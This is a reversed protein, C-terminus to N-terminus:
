SFRMKKLVGRGDSLDPLGLLVQTMNVVEPGRLKEVMWKGSNIRDPVVRAEVQMGKQLSGGGFATHHVYVKRGDELSVFGFGREDNWDAVVGRTWAEGDLEADVGADPAQYFPVLGGFHHGLTAGFVGAVNKLVGGGSCAAGAGSWNEVSGGCAGCASGASATAAVMEPRRVVQKAMYRNPQREDAAVNVQVLEGVLLDGGGFASSHVYIQRGDLSQVFGFGRPDWSIVEAWVVDSSLDLGIGCCGQASSQATGAADSLPQAAGAGFQFGSLATVTYKGPNRADPALTAKFRQGVSLEGGGNAAFASAHIYARRGDDMLLFGFGKLSSWEAVTGDEGEFAGRVIQMGHLKGPNTPDEQLTCWVIEGVVLESGYPGRTAEDIQSVHVSAQRQDALKVFGYGQM